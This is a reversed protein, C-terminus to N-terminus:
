TECMVFIGLVLGKIKPSPIFKREQSLRVGSVSHSLHVNRMLYICLITSLVVVVVVIIIVVIIIIFQCFFLIYFPVIFHTRLFVEVYALFYPHLQVFFM